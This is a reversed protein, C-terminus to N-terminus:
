KRGRKLNQWYIRQNRQSFHIAKGHDKERADDLARRYELYKECKSHCHLQREGCGKCPAKM